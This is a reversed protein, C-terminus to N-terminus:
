TYLIEAVKLLQEIVADFEDNSNRVFEPYYEDFVKRNDPKELYMNMVEMMGTLEHDDKFLSWAEQPTAVDEYRIGIQQSQLVEITNWQDSQKSFVELRAINGAKASLIDIHIRFAVTRDDLKVRYLATYEHRVRGHVLTAYDPVVSFKRDAM